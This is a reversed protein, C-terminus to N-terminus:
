VSAVWGKVQELHSPLLGKEKRSAQRYAAQMNELHKNREKLTMRKQGPM